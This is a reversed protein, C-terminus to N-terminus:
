FLAQVAFWAKGDEPTLELYHKRITTESNGAYRAAQVVGLDNDAALAYSICSKRLGNHVPAINLKAHM